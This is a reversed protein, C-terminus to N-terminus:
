KNGGIKRLNYGSQRRAQQRPDESRPSFKSPAIFHALGQMKQSLKHALSRSTTHRPKIGQAKSSQVIRQLGQKTLPHKPTAEGPGGEPKATEVLRNYIKDQWKM